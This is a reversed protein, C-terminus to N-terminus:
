SSKGAPHVALSIIEEDHGTFVRQEHRSFNYVIAYKGVSYIVDGEINYRVNNRCKESQYGYIWELSLSTDPPLAKIPADHYVMPELKETFTRWTDGTRAFYKPGDFKSLLNWAIALKQDETRPQPINEGEHDCDSPLMKYVLAKEVAYDPNGFYSFWSRIDPQSMLSEALVNIRLRIQDSSDVGACDVFLQSVLQEIAEEGPPPVNTLKCLGTSLSKFALTVEDISLLQSGDFDYISLVFELIERLKMGSLAAVTSSFELADILGNKDTDLLIFLLNAKATVAM